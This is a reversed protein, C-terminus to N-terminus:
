WKVKNRKTNELIENTYIFHNSGYFGAKGGSYAEAAPHPAELIYNLQPDSPIEKITNVDYGRVPYRNHIFKGFKQAKKGWLMWVLGQHYTLYKIVKSTFLEWYDLHSGAKGAEVTLATNLLLVGQSSWHSLTKWTPDDMDKYFSVGKNNFIETRINRLSPPIGETEPVAFATGIAKNPTPYPDQGLIAVKYHSMPLKFVNFINEPRPYYTINPLIESNLTLLPDQNLFKILPKWSEHFIEIPKM